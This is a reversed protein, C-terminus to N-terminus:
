GGKKIYVGPPQTAPPPAKRSAVANSVNITTTPQKENLLALQLAIEKLWFTEYYGSACEIEVAKIEESTM